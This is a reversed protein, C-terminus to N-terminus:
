KFSSLILAPHGRSALRAQVFSLFCSRRYTLPKTFFLSLFVLFTFDCGTTSPDSPQLFLPLSVCHQFPFHHASSRASICSFPLPPDEHIIVEVFGDSGSWFISQPSRGLFPNPSPLNLNCGLDTQPFLSLYVIFPPFLSSPSFFPCLKPSLLYHIGGCTASLNPRKANPIGRHM